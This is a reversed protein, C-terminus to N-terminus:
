LNCPAQVHVARTMEPNSAFGHCELAEQIIGIVEYQDRGCSEPINLTQMEFRPEFMDYVICRLHLARFNVVAGDIELEFDCVGQRNQQVERLAVGRDIDRTEWPDVSTDTEFAM